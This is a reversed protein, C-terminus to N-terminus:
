GTRLNVVEITKGPKNDDGKHQTLIYIGFAFKGKIQDQGRVPVGRKRKDKRLNADLPSPLKGARSTSCILQQPDQEAM